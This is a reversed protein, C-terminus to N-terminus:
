DGREARKKLKARLMKNTRKEDRLQTTLLETKAELEGLRMMLELGTFNLSTMSSQNFRVEDMILKQRLSLGRQNQFLTNIQDQMGHLITETDEYQSLLTTSSKGATKQRRLRQAAEKFDLLDADKDLYPITRKPLPSKIRAADLKVVRAKKGKAKM